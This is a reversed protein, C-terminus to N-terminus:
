HKFQLKRLFLSKAKRFVESDRMKNIGLAGKNVLSWFGWAFHKLCVAFSNAWTVVLGLSPAPKLGHSPDPAWMEKERDRLEEEQPWSCESVPKSSVTTPHHHFDWVRITVLDQLQWGLGSPLAWWRQLFNAPSRTKGFALLGSVSMLFSFCNSWFYQKCYSM